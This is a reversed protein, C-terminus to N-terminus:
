GRGPKGLRLERPCTNQRAMTTPQLRSLFIASIKLIYACRGLRSMTLLGNTRATKVVHVHGMNMLITSIYQLRNTQQFLHDHTSLRAQQKKSITRACTHKHSKLALAGDNVMDGVSASRLPSGGRMKQRAGEPSFCRGVTRGAKGKCATGLYQIFHLVPLGAAM